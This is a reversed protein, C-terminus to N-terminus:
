APGTSHNDLAQALLGGDVGGALPTAALVDGPSALLAAGSAAHDNVIRVWLSTDLANRFNQLTTVGPQFHFVAHQGDTLSGVGSGDAVMAITQTNGIVGPQKAYILPSSSAVLPNLDLSAFVPFGLGTGGDFTFGFGPAAYPYTIIVRFGGSMARGLFDALGCDRLTPLLDLDEVGEVHLMLTGYGRTTTVVGVGEGLLLRLVGLVDDVAGRSRRSAIRARVFRVQVTNDAAVRPQRVRKCILNLAHTREEDTLGDGPELLKALRVKEVMNSFEQVPEVLATLLAAINPKVDTTIAM